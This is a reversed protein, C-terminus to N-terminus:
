ADRFRISLRRNKEGGLDVGVGEGLGVGTGVGSVDGPEDRMGVRCEGEM